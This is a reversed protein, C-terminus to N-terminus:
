VHARGIKMTLMKLVDVKQELGIEDTEHIKGRLIRKTLVKLWLRLLIQKLFNPFPEAMYRELSAQLGKDLYSYLNLEDQRSIDFSVTTLSNRLTNLRSFANAEAPNLLELAVALKLRQVFNLDSALNIADPNPLEQLILRILETEIHLHGRLVLLEPSDDRVDELFRAKLTTVENVTQQRATALLARLRKELRGSPTTPATPPPTDSPQNM